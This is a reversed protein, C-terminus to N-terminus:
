LGEELSTIIDDVVQHDTLPNFFVAKWGPLHRGHPAYGMSTTFSLMADKDPNRAASRKYFLRKIEDFYREADADTVEGAEFRQFIEAANRGKPLTWWVAHTGPCRGNLVKCFDLEDLRTRLYRALEMGHAILVQYGVLGIGNLSAM